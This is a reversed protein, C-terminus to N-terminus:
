DVIIRGHQMWSHLSCNYEFSGTKNFTYSWIDRKNLPPSNFNTGNIIYRAEDTNTWQVTTGNAIRLESPVFKSGFIKVYAPKTLTPTATPTPTPTVTTNTVSVSKKDYSQMSDLMMGLLAAIVLIFVVLKLKNM